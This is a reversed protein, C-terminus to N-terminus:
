PKAALFITFQPFKSFKNYYAFDIEKAKEIVKTEVFEEIIFGAEKLLKFHMSPPGIWFALKEGRDNFNHEYRAYKHYDGFTKGDNGREAFGMVMMSHEDVIIRESSWRLPHPVSFLFKGTSKLVRFVEKYVKIPDDTYDIALSSYVFDFTEEKFDISEMNGIKFECDPYSRKAVNISNESIDIGILKAPNKTTLILSEDGTGCGLMLVTTGTLSPLLSEMAPKEVLSHSKMAGSLIDQQRSEAFSNYDNAKKM